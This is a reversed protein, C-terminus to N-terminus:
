LNRYLKIFNSFIISNEKYRNRHGCIAIFVIEQDTLIRELLLKYNENNIKDLIAIQPSQKKKNIM